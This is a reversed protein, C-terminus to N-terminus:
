RSPGLAYDEIDSDLAGQSEYQGPHVSLVKDQPSIYVTTPTVEVGGVLIKLISASTTAYSPYSVHHAGLFVRADASSDKFDAGLFAVRKGYKVSARAFLGFEAQCPGCWQAWINLVISYGHSTLQRIRADLASQGGPLLESAQAHLSALPAPSGALEDEARKVSPAKTPRTSLDNAVEQDLQKLSPWGETYIEQYWVIKGASNTLVFWPEGQVQYGDAVSGTTDIGVPYALRDPLTRIFEPLASASPEVSGEDVATIAPLGKSRAERAYANLEDLEAGIARTQRDWTAFFLYLHPEGPGLEVRGGGLQPLSAKATPRTEPREAYSYHTHVAPHDPLLKSAAQALLQGMQPVSAYSPYTTYVTRIRGQPDIV